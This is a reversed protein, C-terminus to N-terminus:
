DSCSASIFSELMAQGAKEGAEAYAATDARLRSVSVGPTHEIEGIHGIFWRQLGAGTVEIHFQLALVNAGVQFAQHPACDTAALCVAGDPLDFTEGHWHLVYYNAARLEALVSRMGAETLQIPMWGIEKEAASYVSAGMARAILQAGLCIGLTPKDLRVRQQLLEIETQLFPFDEEDNASIPGGLVILLDDSEPLLQSLDDVGAEYIHVPVALREFVAAFGGLDEFELHRIVNVQKM